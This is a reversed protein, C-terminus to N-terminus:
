KRVGPTLLSERVRLFSLFGRGGLGEVGASSWGEDCVSDM